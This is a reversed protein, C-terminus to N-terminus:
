GLAPALAADGETEPTAPASSGSGSGTAPPAAGRGPTGDLGRAAVSPPESDPELRRYLYRYMNRGAATVPLSLIAGLLGGITGGVVLAFMVASPHLEVADGQIKPVLLNNEVQQVLVYLAFAAIVAEIGATAALLVAPIAALIPGIIPLLEFLGAVLALFLAFRSFVPDVVAGLVLLGVYTAIGVTLGLIVQARVWQGFVRQVIRAVTWVDERWEGPLARDFAGVLQRRDKLIYFVWVPVILFGFVSSVLAAVSGFVPVLLGSVLSGLRAGLDAFAADISDRIEPPLALGRYIESLRDLQENLATSLAPLDTVFQSVQAVLPGLTLTLGEIVVFVVVVYVLLVSLWRPVGVRTVREVLPNLLYVLLLGIVFPSIAERGMWLVAGAVVAAAMILVARQSPSPLGTPRRPAPTAREAPSTLGAPSTGVPGSVSPAQTDASLRADDVM